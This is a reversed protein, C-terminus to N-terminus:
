HTGELSLSVTRWLLNRCGITLCAFAAIHWLLICVSSVYLFFVGLVTKIPEPVFRLQLCLCWTFMWMCLVNLFAAIAVALSHIHKGTNLISTNIKKVALWFCSCCMAQLSPTPWADGRFVVHSLVLSPSLTFPCLEPLLFASRVRLLLPCPSVSPIPSFSLSRMLSLPLRLSCPLHVIRSFGQLM